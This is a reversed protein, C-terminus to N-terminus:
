NLPLLGTKKFSKARFHNVTVGAPSSTVMTLSWKQRFDLTNTTGVAGNQRFHNAMTKKLLRHQAFSLIYPDPLYLVREIIVATENTLLCLGGGGVQVTIDMRM